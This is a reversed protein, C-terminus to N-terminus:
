LALDSSLSSFPATRLLCVDAMHRHPLPYRYLHIIAQISSKYGPKDTNQLIVQHSSVM